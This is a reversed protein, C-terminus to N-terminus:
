AESTSIIKKDYVKLWTIKPKPRGEVYCAIFFPTSSKVLIETGELSVNSSPLVWPAMKEVVHIRFSIKEIINTLRTQAICEFFWDERLSLNVINLCKGLSLKTDCISIKRGNRKRDQNREELRYDMNVNEIVFAKEYENMRKM